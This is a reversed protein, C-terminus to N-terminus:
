ASRAEMNGKEQRLEALAANFMRLDDKLRELRAENQDSRSVYEALKLGIGTVDEALDEIAGEHRKIVEQIMHERQKALERERGGLLWRTGAYAAVGLVVVTGIGTVMASLGLLGGLGLAALGSTIGAASLGVVSGSFFIATIPVSAATAVAAIEKIHGELESASVDGKILAQEYEVTKGALEIVQEAREGFRAEAVVTITEEEPPQVVGDARSVQVMDKIVSVGIEEENDPVQSIVEEVLRVLVESSVEGADLSRRVEERSEPGLGIRSMFVYLYQIERPDLRGDVLCQAALVRAYLVKVAEPRAELTM